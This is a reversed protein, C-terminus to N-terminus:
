KGTSKTCKLNKKVGLGDAHAKIKWQDITGYTGFM